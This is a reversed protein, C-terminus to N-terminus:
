VPDAVVAGQYCIVPDHLEAELLYPRVSRFMRGTVVVVRLGAASAARLADRTRPHLVADEGILTRDFDSAIM